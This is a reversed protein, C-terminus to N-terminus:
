AGQVISLFRSSVLRYAPSNLRRYSESHHVVPLSESIINLEFEEFEKVDLPIARVTVLRRAEGWLSDFRRRSGRVEQRTLLVAKWLSEVLGGAAKFPRLNVRHIKGGPDIMELLIEGPLVPDLRDFEEELAALAAEEDSLLHQIGFVAQHILKYLDQAKCGRHLNLQEGVIRELTAAM